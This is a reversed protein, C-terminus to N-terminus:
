VGFFCKLLIQFGFAKLQGFLPCLNQIIQEAGPVMRSRLPNVAFKGNFVGREPPGRYEPGEMDKFFATKHPLDLKGIPLM